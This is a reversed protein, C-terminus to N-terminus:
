TTLALAYRDEFHRPSKGHRSLLGNWFTEGVQQEKKPSVSFPPANYDFALCLIQGDGFNRKAVYIQNDTGILVECGLNRLFRSVNLCSGM